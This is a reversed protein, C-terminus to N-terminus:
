VKDSFRLYSNENPLLRYLGDCDLAYKICSSNFLFFVSKVLVRYILFKCLINGKFWRIMAKLKKM